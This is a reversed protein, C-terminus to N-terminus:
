FSDSKSSGELVISLSPCVKCQSSRRKSYKDHFDLSDPLQDRNEVSKSSSDDKSTSAKGIDLKLADDVDKPDLFCQCYVVSSDRSFSNSRLEDNTFNNDIAGQRCLRNKNSTIPHPVDADEENSDKQVLMKQKFILIGDKTTNPPMLNNNGSSDSSKKDGRPCTCSIRRSYFTDSSSISSRSIPFTSTSCSDFRSSIDSDQSAKRRCPENMIDRSETSSANRCLIRMQMGNYGYENQNISDSHFSCNKNHLNQSLEERGSLNNDPSISVRSYNVKNQIRKDCKEQECFFKLVRGFKSQRIDTSSKEKDGLKNQCDKLLNHTRQLPYKSVAPFSKSHTPNQKLVCISNGNISNPTPRNSFNSSHRQHGIGRSVKSEELRKCIMVCDKKFQKTFIAYLFPNACSNFPLAFITLIKAGETSIIHIGAVSCLAFFAIPAWCIFDTFVLLAMRKAIRSDNSNWAQSGKISCYMKLYCGMLITFALGNIVMLSVVYTRSAIDGTEFPLCVAFKSYNNIGIIPLAALVIAFIWCVTMVYSAHRISLRKTLHMAHTIAYHRELTIVSLTFVSLESSLVGLFGAVRCGVSFQWKIAHFRFEGLTNADVVALFTLYIGMFFDALALNCILFRPVDLKTRSFSIVFIVIGNGFLALLLVVWVGCRLTWWEFLDECPLFPGPSPYCQIGHTTKWLVAEEVSEDSFVNENQAKLHQLGAESIFNTWYDSWTKDVNAKVDDSSANFSDLTWLNLNISDKKFFVVTEKIETISDDADNTANTELLSLFDCCHYAYSLMLIKVNPFSNRHPFTKLHKNNHAKLEIINDLYKNPMQPFLNNGINLDNLNPTHSFANPDIHIIRNGELDLVKLAELGFLSNNELGKIRNHSLHLIRLQQQNIFIEDPFKEIKGYSIDIKKLKPLKSFANVDINKIPNRDLKIDMLNLKNVLSDDSISQIDNSSLVMKELSRLNKMENPIAQLKNESLDLFKLKQLSKFSKPGIKHIVNGQLFLLQLNALNSFAFSPIATISNYALSLVTLSKFISVFTPIAILKNRELWLEQLNDKELINITLNKLKNGSLLQSMQNVRCYGTTSIYSQHHCTTHLRQRGQHYGHKLPDFLQQWMVTAQFWVISQVQVRKIHKELAGTTPPLKNSEALHKCFLHWRFDPINAIQIGNPCYALCVFSALIDKVEEQPTLDDDEPLKM